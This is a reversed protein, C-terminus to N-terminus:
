RVSMPQLPKPALKSMDWVELKVGVCGLAEVEAITDAYDASDLFQQCTEMTEFEVHGAVRPFM